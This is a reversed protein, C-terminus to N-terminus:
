QESRSMEFLHGRSGRSSTRSFPPEFTLEHDRRLNEDINSNNVVDTNLRLEADTPKGRKENQKRLEINEYNIVSDHM